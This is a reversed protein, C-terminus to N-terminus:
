QEKPDKKTSSTWLQSYNDAMWNETYTKRLELITTNREEALEKNKSIKQYENLNPDDNTLTIRDLVEQSIKNVEETQISEVHETWADYKMLIEILDKPQTTKLLVTKEDEELMQNTVWGATWHHMM